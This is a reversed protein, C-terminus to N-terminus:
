SCSNHPSSEPAPGSRRRANMAWPMSQLTAAARSMGSIAESSSQARLRRAASAGASYAQRGAPLRARALATAITPLHAHGGVGVVLQESTQVWRLALRDGQGVARREHDGPRARPLRAHQGRADAVEEALAAHTRVLHERDRERVAGGGLHALADLQEDALRSAHPHHREVGGAAADQATFGIAEPVARVERDVVLGVLHADDLGAELLEPAVGLAERRTADVRADRGLLVPEDRRRLEALVDAVEEVLDHGVHELEVLAPQVGRVRHVEIVQQHAADVQQLAEVIDAFAPLAGEVVQEDVLVLVRVVRLVADHAQEGVGM